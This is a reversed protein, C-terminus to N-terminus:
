KKILCKCYKPEIQYKLCNRGKPNIYSFLSNGYKSNHNSNKNGEALFIM